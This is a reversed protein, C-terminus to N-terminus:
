SSSIKGTKWVDFCSGDSGCSKGSGSAGAIGTVSGEEIRLDVRDVAVTKRGYVRTLDRVEVLAVRTTDAPM